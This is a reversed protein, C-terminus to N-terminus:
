IIFPTVFYIVIIFVDINGIQIQYIKKWNLLLWRWIQYRQNGQYAKYTKKDIETSFPQKFSVSDIPETIVVM